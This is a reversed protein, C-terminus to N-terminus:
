DMIAETEEAAFSFLIVQRKELPRTLTWKHKVDVYPLGTLSPNVGFGGMTHLPGCEHLEWYCFEWTLTQQESGPFYKYTTTITERLWWM